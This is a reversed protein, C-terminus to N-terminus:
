NRGTASPVPDLAPTECGPLDAILTECIDSGLLFQAAMALAGSDSPVRILQGLAGGYTNVFDLYSVLGGLDDATVGALAASGDAAPGLIDGNAAVVDALSSSLRSTAELLGAFDEEHETITPLAEHSNAGIALVTDGQDALQDAITAMSDLLEHRDESSDVMADLVTQGNTVSDAIEQSLGDIGEAFTHLITTVDEPDVAELLENADGLIDTLELAPRTHEIEDGDTLYPGEGEGPGPILDIFKPGFISIPRVVAVTSEPVDVDPEIRLGVVARDDDGLEISEVQGVDVGRLKVVSQTDLNQGAGDFRATLDYGPEYAGFSYRVGYTGLLALLLVGVLGVAAQHNRTWHDTDLVASLSPRRM